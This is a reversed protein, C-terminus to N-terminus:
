ELAPEEGYEAFEINDLDLEETHTDEYSTHNIWDDLTHGMAMFDEKENMLKKANKTEKENKEVISLLQGERGKRSSPFPPFTHTPVSIEQITELVPGHTLTVGWKPTSSFTLSKNVLVVRTTKYRNDYAKRAAKTKLQAMVKRFNAKPTNRTITNTKKSLTQLQKVQSFDGFTHILRKAYKPIDRKSSKKVLEAMLVM